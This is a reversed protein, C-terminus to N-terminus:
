GFTFSFAQVQPDLFEIEFTRDVVRHNQRVLQYLRQETVVGRGSADTDVGHDEGPAHGDITVKFLVPKGDAGPGLVLHAYRAHFRFVIAGGANSLDAREKTVTWNGDLGWQNQKLSAPTSYVHARDHVEGGVSAVNAARDYGIYTEQSIMDTDDSAMEAGAAQVAV